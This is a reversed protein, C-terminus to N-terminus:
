HRVVAAVIDDMQAALRHHEVVHDQYHRSRSEHHAVRQQAAADAIVPLCDALVFLRRAREADVREAVLHDGDDDRRAHRSWGAHKIREIVVIQKRLLREEDQARDLDDQTGDDAADARQEPRHDTREQEGPNRFAQLLQQRIEAKIRRAGLTHEIADAEQQHHHDQRVSDPRRNRPQQAQLAAFRRLASIVTSRSTVLTEFFKWPRRATASTLKETGSPATKATIPGFPAPLVVNNLRIAPTNLGSWPRMANWPTPISRSGGSSTHRRPMPRVKWITRGNGVNLTSSLTAM